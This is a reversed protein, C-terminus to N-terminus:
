LGLGTMPNDRWRDEARVYSHVVPSTPSWRGHRAIVAVPAGAKYASTAGGARLSHASYAQANPLEARVALARVVDGIGDVSMSAGIRGHRTISRFLRGDTVGHEKLEDRWARYLRVPCTGAHSGYPVAVTAGIADQDTKSARILVELGDDTETVDSLHLASLESRRSMMAFGLVVLFRDRVGITTSPDTTEVM